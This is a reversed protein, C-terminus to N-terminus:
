WPFGIPHQVPFGGPIFSVHSYVSPAGCSQGLLSTFFPAWNPAGGKLVGALWGDHWVSGGSDGGCSQFSAQRIRYFWSAWPGNVPDGNTQLNRNTLNGCSPSSWNLGSQCMFDGLMDTGDASSGNGTVAGPDWEWWGLGLASEAAPSAAYPSTITSPAASYFSNLQIMAVDMEAGYRVRPNGNASVIVGGQHLNSATATVPDWYVAPPTLRTRDICHGATIAWRRGLTDVWPINSTCAGAGTFSVELGGIQTSHNTRRGLDRTGVSSTTQVVYSNPAFLGALSSGTAEINKETTNIVLWGCSEDVFLSVVGNAELANIGGPTRAADLNSSWVKESIAGPVPTIHVASGLGNKTAVGDILSAAVIAGPMIRIQLGTAPSWQISVFADGLSQRMERRIEDPRLNHRTRSMEELLTREAASVPVVSGPLEEIANRPITPDLGLERRMNPGTRELQAVDTGDIQGIFECGEPLRSSDFESAVYPSGPSAIVTSGMSVTSLSIAILAAIIQFASKYYRRSGMSFQGGEERVTFTSRTVHCYQCPRTTTLALSQAEKM